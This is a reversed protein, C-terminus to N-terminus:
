LTFIYVRSQKNKHISISSHLQFGTKEYFKIARGLEEGVVVKFQKVKRKKMENLFDKFLEEAVGKGQFAPSVAITLLEAEPLKRKKQKPYKLTECIKKLISIRFIKPLLLLSVQFFYKKFFDKYFKSVSTCGSIFGIVRDRSKAVIVFAFVSVIMTGYLKSLFKEGLESLFGKKIEQRHIKAVQPCDKKNALRIVM